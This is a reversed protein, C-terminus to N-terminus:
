HFAYMGFITERVPKTWFEPLLWQFFSLFPTEYLYFALPFFM